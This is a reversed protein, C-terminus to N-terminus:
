LNRTQRGGHTSRAHKSLEVASPMLESRREMPSVREKIEYWVEDKACESGLELVDLIGVFEFIVAERHLNRYTLRDAKGRQQAYRLADSPSGARFVIIREECLRRKLAKGKRMVRWQFLLKADYRLKAKAM